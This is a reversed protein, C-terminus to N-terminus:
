RGTKQTNNNQKHEQEDGARDGEHRLAIEATAPDLNNKMAAEENLQERKAM